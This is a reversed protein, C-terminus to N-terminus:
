WPCGNAHAWQLVELHGAWAAYGCTSENWPCGNARAWKILNLYGDRAALECVDHARKRSEPSPLVVDRFRRCVFRVTVLEVYSCLPASLIIRLIDTPLALLLSPPAAFSPPLYHADDNRVEKHPPPSSPTSRNTSM